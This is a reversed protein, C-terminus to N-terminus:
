QQPTREDALQNAIYHPSLNQKKALRLIKATTNYIRRIRKEITQADQKAATCSVSILGGANVVYDPAYTIHRKQLMVGAHDDELPNNTGGAVVKCQLKPITRKNLTGGMNLCPALVDCETSYIEDPEVATALYQKALRRAEDMNRSTLVLHAGEAHLLEVLPLGLEGLGQVAVRLGRLSDGLGAHKVAAQMGYLVGLASRQATLNVTGPPRPGGLVFNTTRRMTVIDEPVIGTDAAVKIMGRLKELEDGLALLMAETKDQHPRGVIVCSGGRLRVGAMAAKRDMALAMKLVDAKAAELNPYPCMRVGGLAAGLATSRIAVFAQLKADPRDIHRVLEYGEVDFDGM